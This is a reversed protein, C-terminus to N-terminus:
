GGGGARWPLFSHSTCLRVLQGVSLAAPRGGGGGQGGGGVCCGALDDQRRKKLEFKVPDLFIPYVASPKEYEGLGTCFVYLTNVLYM